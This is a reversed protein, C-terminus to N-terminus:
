EDPQLPIIMSRAQAVKFAEDDREQLAERVNDDLNGLARQIMATEREFNGQDVLPPPPTGVFPKLTEPVESLDDFPTPEGAPIPRSTASNEDPALM